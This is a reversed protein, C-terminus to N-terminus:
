RVDLRPNNTYLQEFHLIYIYLLFSPPPHPFLSLFLFVSVFSSFFRCFFLWLTVSIHERQSCISLILLALSLDITFSLSVNVNEIDVYLDYLM